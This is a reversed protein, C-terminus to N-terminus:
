YKLISKHRVEHIPQRDSELSLHLTVGLTRLENLKLLPAVLSRCYEDLILVKYATAASEERSVSADNFSLLKKLCDIQKKKVDLMQHFTLHPVRHM